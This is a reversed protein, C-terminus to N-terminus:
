GFTVQLPLIHGGGAAQIKNLNTQCLCKRLPPDFRSRGKERGRDWPGIWAGWQLLLVGTLLLLYSTFHGGRLSSTASCGVLTFCPIRLGWAGSLWFYIFLYIFCTLMASCPYSPFAPIQSDGQHWLVDSLLVSESDWSEKLPVAAM